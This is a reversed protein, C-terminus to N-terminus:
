FLAPPPECHLTLQLLAYKINTVVETGSGTDSHNCPLDSRSLELCLVFKKRRRTSHDKITIKLSYLALNNM